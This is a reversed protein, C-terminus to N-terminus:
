SQREWHGNKVSFDNERCLSYVEGEVCPVIRGNSFHAAGGTWELLACDDGSVSLDAPAQAVVSYGYLGGDRSALGGMEYGMFEAM